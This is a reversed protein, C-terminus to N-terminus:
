RYDVIDCQGPNRQSGYRIVKRRLGCIECHDTISITTGDLSWVGPNESCGGEGDSSWVHGNSHSSCDPAVTFSECYEVDCGECHDIDEYEIM